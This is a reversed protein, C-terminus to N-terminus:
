DWEVESELFNRQPGLSANVQTFKHIERPKFMTPFM